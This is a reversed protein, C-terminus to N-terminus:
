FNWRLKYECNRSGRKERLTVKLSEHKGLTFKPYVLVFHTTVGQPVMSPKKYAFAPSLPLIQLSAKRTTNGLIRYLMFSDVEYNIPSDNELAYRIYVYDGHYFPDAVQLGIGHAKKLSHLTLKKELMQECIQAVQEPLAKREEETQKETNPPGVRKTSDVFHTFHPLTDRYALVFSYIGEGATRVLLNSVPGPNAQLLGLNEHAERNFTFAFHSSGTIAKEIPRDFFISLVERKNAYLTDLAKQGYSPTIPLALLLLCIFKKM